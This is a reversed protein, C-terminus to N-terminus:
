SIELAGLTSLALWARAAALLAAGAAAPPRAVLWRALLRFLRRPRAAPTGVATPSSFAGSHLHCESQPQGGTGGLERTPGNAGRQKAAIRADTGSDRGADLHM